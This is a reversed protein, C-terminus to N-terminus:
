APVAEGRPAPMVLPAARLAPLVGALLVSVHLAAFAFNNLTAPEQDRLLGYVAVGVLVAAVVAAAAVLLVIRKM